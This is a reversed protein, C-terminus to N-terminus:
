DTKMGIIIDSGEYGGFDRMFVKFHEHGFKEGYQRMIGATALIFQAVRELEEPTAQFSVEELELLKNSNVIRKKYGYINM